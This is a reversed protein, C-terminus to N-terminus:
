KLYHPASPVRKVQARAPNSSLREACCNTTHFIEEKRGRENGGERGGERERSAAM